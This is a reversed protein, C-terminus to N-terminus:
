WNASMSHLIFYWDFKIDKQQCFKYYVMAFLITSRIYMM